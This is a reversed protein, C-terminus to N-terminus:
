GENEFLHIINDKQVSSSMCPCPPEVPEKFTEYIFCSGAETSLLPSFIYLKITKDVGEPHRQWIKCDIASRKRRCTYLAGTFAPYSRRVCLANARIPTPSILPSTKSNKGNGSRSRRFVDENVIQLVDSKEQKPGNGDKGDKIHTLPEQATARAPRAQLFVCLLRIRGAPRRGTKAPPMPRAQFSPVSCSNKM